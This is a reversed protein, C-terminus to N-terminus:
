GDALWKWCGDGCYYNGTQTCGQCVAQGSCDSMEPAAVPAVGLLVAGAVGTYLLKRIRSM